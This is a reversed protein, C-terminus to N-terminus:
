LIFHYSEVVVCLTRPLMTFECACHEYIFYSTPWLVKLGWFQSQLKLYHMYAKYPLKYFINCNRVGALSFTFLNLDVIFFLM